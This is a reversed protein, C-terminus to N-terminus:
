SCVVTINQKSKMPKSVQLVCFIIFLFWFSLDAHLLKFAVLWSCCTQLHNSERCCSLACYQPHQLSDAGTQEGVVAATLFCASISSSPPNVGLFSRLAMCLCKKEQWKEFILSSSTSYDPEQKSLSSLLSWEYERGMQKRWEMTSTSATQHTGWTLASRTLLIPQTKTLFIRSWPMSRM